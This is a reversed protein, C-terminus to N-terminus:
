FSSPPMRARTHVSSMVFSMQALPPPHLDSPPSLYHSLPCPSRVSPNPPRHLVPPSFRKYVIGTLRWLSFIYPADLTLWGHLSIYPPPPSRVRICAAHNREGVIRLCPTFLGQSRVPVSGPCRYPELLPCHHYHHDHLVRWSCFAGPVAQGRFKRIPFLVYTRLAEVVNTDLLTKASTPLLQYKVLTSSGADSRM